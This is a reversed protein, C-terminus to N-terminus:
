SGRHSGPVKIHNRDLALRVDNCYYCFLYFILKLKFLNGFCKWICSGLAIEALIRKQTHAHTHQSNDRIKKM